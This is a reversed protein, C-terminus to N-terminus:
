LVDEFGPKDTFRDKNREWWGRKVQNALKAIQAEDAKSKSVLDIYTFYKLVQQIDELSSNIPLKITIEKSDSEIKVAM